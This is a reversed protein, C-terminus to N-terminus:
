AGCASRISMGTAEHFVGKALETGRHSRNQTLKAKEGFSLILNDFDSCVTRVLINALEDIGRWEMWRVCILGILHVVVFVVSLYIVPKKQRPENAQNRFYLVRKNQDRSRM